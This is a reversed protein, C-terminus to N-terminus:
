SPTGTRLGDTRANARQGVDLASSSWPHLAMLQSRPGTMCGPKESCRSARALWVRRHRANSCRSPLPSRVHGPLGTKVASKLSSFQVIRCGECQGGGCLRRRRCSRGSEGRPTVIKSLASVPLRRVGEPTL